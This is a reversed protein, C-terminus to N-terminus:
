PLVLLFTFNGQFLRAPRCPKRQGRQSALFYPREDNAPAVLAILAPATTMLCGERGGTGVQLCCLNGRVVRTEKGEVQRGLWSLFRRVLESADDEPTSVVFRM